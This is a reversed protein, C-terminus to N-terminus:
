DRDLHDAVALLVREALEREGRGLETDAAVRAALDRGARALTPAGSRAATGNRATPALLGAVAQTLAGLAEADADSGPDLVSVVGVTQGDIMLPTVTLATPVYGTQEATEYSFRHDARVDKISLSQGTGAVFGAIGDTVPIRMGIVRDAGAGEAAIYTLDRRDDSILAVSCAAAGLSLRGLHLVDILVADIPAGSFGQDAAPNTAM